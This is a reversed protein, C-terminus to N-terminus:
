LTDVHTLHADSLQLLREALGQARHAPAFLHPHGDASTRDGVDNGGAGCGPVIAHALEDRFTSEDGRRASM